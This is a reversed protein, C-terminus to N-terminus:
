SRIHCAMRNTNGGKAAQAFAKATGEGIGSTAGVFMATPRYSWKFALNSTRIAPLSPKSM